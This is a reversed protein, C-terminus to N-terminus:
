SAPVVAIPCPAEALLWSTVSGLITRAIAGVGRPGVVILDSRDFADALVRQPSHEQMTRVVRGDLDVRDIMQGIREHAATVVDPHRQAVSAPELWPIVDVGVVAEITVGSPMVDIAWRLARESHESGDVGVVVRRPLEPPRDEPVIVVPGHAHHALDSSTSGLLRHRHGADGRRGVVVPQDPGSREILVRAPHGESVDPADVVSSVDEPLGALAADISRQAAVAATAELGARDVDIPRQGAVTAVAVPLHWTAVPHVADGTAHALRVAWRLAASSGDSGDVGVTWVRSM